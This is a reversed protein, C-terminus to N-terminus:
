RGSQGRKFRSKRRRLRYSARMRCVINLTIVPIVFLGIMAFEIFRFDELAREIGKNINMATVILWAVLFLGFFPFAVFRMVHRNQYRVSYIVSKYIKLVNDKLYHVHLYMFLFILIIMIIEVSTVTFIWSYKKHAWDLLISAGTLMTAAGAVVSFVEEHVARARKFM